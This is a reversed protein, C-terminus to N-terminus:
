RKADRPSEIGAKEKIQGLNITISVAPPDLKDRMDQLSPRAPRSPGEAARRLGEISKSEPFSEKFEKFRQEIDERKVETFQVDKQREPRMRPQRKPDRGETVVAFEEQSSSFDMIEDEGLANIFNKRDDEDLSQLFDWFTGTINEKEAM